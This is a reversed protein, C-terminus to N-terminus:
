RPRLFGRPPVIGRGSFGYESAIALYSTSDNREPRERIASGNADSGYLHRQVTGRDAESHAWVARVGLAVEGTIQQQTTFVEATGDKLIIALVQLRLGASATFTGTHIGEPDANATLSASSSTVQGGSDSGAIAFSSGSDQLPRLARVAALGVVAM